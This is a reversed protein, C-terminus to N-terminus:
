FPVEEEKMAGAPTKNSSTRSRDDDDAQVAGLIIRVDKPPKPELLRFYNFVPLTTRSLKGDGDPEIQFLRKVREMAEPSGEAEDWLESLKKGRYCAVSFIKEMDIDRKFEWDDGVQPSSNDERTFRWYTAILSGKDEKKRKFRKLSKMKLPALRMEYQHTNGRQDTWKSCDVFTLYGVYYRSKPGLIQCCVVEDYVGQLCTLWNRYNGDIKPNHEHIAFPDDDVVVVDKYGGGPIWLRPAGSMEELRREEEAVGDFGQQYWSM